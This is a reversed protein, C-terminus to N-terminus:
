NEEKEKDRKESNMKIIKWSGKRGDPNGALHYLTWFALSTVPFSQRQKQAKAKRARRTLLGSADKM